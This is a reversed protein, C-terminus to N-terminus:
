SGVRIRRYIEEPNSYFGRIVESVDKFRRIDNKVMWDLVLSRKEIEESVDKLSKGTSKAIKELHYSRGSYQYTDTNANYSFVENTIIENTRTDLGVFETASTVRRVPKGGVQLKQQILVVDLSTVLTRPINMPETELRHVVSAVSEAHLSSFGGHGTAMAQFLTYAEAGRIEGVIIYDPRQRMAAKLLDYLSIEASSGGSPRSVSRLWNKHHLQLEPTDEITIIKFDPQIFASLCNLTTTKGSATPGCVFIDLKNEIFYWLFAALKLPVTKFKILDVITLPDSKFKRITFTSGGRTVAKGYTMQIRSGDALISDLIPNAVSIMRGTRYALKIVFSNLEDESDFSVNTPISEYERHWVYVPGFVGNCSIDEILPDRMMVDIKGYGVFDRNIYYLIKELSADGVRIRFKKVIRKVQDTLYARAKEESGLDSFTVDIEEVLFDRITLFQKKEAEQLTPEFVEYWLEHTAPDESLVAFQFPENIKFTELIRRKSTLQKETM